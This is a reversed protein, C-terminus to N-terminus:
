VDVGSAKAVEAARKAKHAERRDAEEEKAKLGVPAGILWRLRHVHRAVVSATPAATSAASM